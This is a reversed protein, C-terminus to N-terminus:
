SEAKLRHKLIRTGGYLLCFCCLILVENTLPIPFGEFMGALWSSTVYYQCPCTPNDCTLGDGDYPDIILTGGCGGCPCPDGINHFEGANYADIDIAQLFPDVSPSEPFGEFQGVNYYKEPLTAANTHLHICVFLLLLVSNLVKKYM